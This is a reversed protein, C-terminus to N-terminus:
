ARLEEIRDLISFLAAHDRGLIDEIKRQAREWYPQGRRMAAEAEDTVTVIRARKDPSASSVVLGAAELPKLTRNLTSRDYGAAEAFQTLSSPGARKLLRLLSFQAVSLGCPELAEDYIVSVIRASRRLKACACITSLM